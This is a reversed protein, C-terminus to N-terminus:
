GPRPSRSRSQFRRSSRRQRPRHRAAPRTTRRITRVGGIDSESNVLLLFKKGYYKTPLHIQLKGYDDDMKTRFIYKSPMAEATGTDKAFGKLLRLTYITNEQWVTNLLIINKRVTDIKLTFPVRIDKGASDYSLTIKNDLFSGVPKSCNIEISKTLEVTRKAINLTDVNVTYSFLNKTDSKRPFSAAPKAMLSTDKKTLTDIEKFIRLSIPASSTDGPKVTDTTFGIWENGGDYILNANYDKLAYIRFEKQPLGKFTFTGDSHATTIYKPKERVVASDPKSAAYLVVFVIGTDPLGTSANTVKGSLELSDFWTGTSFTYSYNAFVNNEHLDKIAKGFSIRYTTNEELLSDALKVTVEKNKSTVVPQISLIPSVQVEKTVNSIVIYEDFHLTVKKVKTNLTSDHPDTSLLKPPTKDKKGGPPM